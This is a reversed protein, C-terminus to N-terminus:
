IGYGPDASCDLREQTLADTLEDRPGHTAVQVLFATDGALWRPAHRADRQLVLLARHTRHHELHAFATCTRATWSPAPHTAASATGALGAFMTGALATTALARTIIRNM